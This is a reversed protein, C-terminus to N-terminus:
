PIVPSLVVDEMGTFSTVVWRQKAADYQTDMQLLVPYSTSGWQTTISVEGLVMARAKGTELVHVFWENPSFSSRYAFTQTGDPISEMHPEPEVTMARLCDESVMGAVADLTQQATYNQSDVTYYASLFGTLDAEIRTEETAQAAQAATRLSTVEESLQEIATEHRTCILEQNQLAYRSTYQELQHATLGLGVGLGLATAGLLIALMWPATLKGPKKM